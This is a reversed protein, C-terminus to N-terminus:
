VPCDSNVIARMAAAVDLPNHCPVNTSFGTGIGSAGNILVLPLIPIFHEPEVPTGDSDLFKLIGADDPHILATTLPSLLTHIYRTAASDKGGQIRTGFQGVPQLLSANNSGVFDQALGVITANLSAEGHHYAAHESVYGALQAVKIERTLNRKLCCHIIKRQSVKFGDCVSPISRVLDYNSFHVLDRHVFDEFSVTRDGTYDLGRSRDYGLLWAKRENAQMKDFALQLAQGSEAGSWGYTSLKMDKFYEKAEQSSSTGLGKYYKIEWGHGGNGEATQLWAEYDTMNYFAREKDAAPQRGTRRRAKVIPTLMSAVFGPICLLSPWLRYFLNFLLGKIHSGDVDQDTMIMIRGYRLGSVDTYHKGSELGLIKKIYTIEKNAAIREQGLDCVNM